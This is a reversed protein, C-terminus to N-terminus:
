SRLIRFALLDIRSIGGAVIRLYMLVWDNKVWLYESSCGAIGCGCMTAMGLFNGTSRIEELASELWFDQMLRWNRTLSAGAMQTLEPLVDIHIGPWPPEIEEALCALLEELTDHRGLLLRENRGDPELVCACSLFLSLDAEPDFEFFFNSSGDYAICARRARACADISRLQVLAAYDRKSLRLVSERDFYRPAKRGTSSLEENM